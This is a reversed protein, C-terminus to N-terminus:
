KSYTNRPCNQHALNVEIGRQIVMFGLFKEVNVSFVCKAPNFKMNYARMLHFAEKLHQVHKARTERNVVIDDINVEITRDILPKFIKIMLSQYTAGVNKLGQPTVFAIKEKDLHFM